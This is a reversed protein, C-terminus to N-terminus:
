KNNKTAEQDDSITAEEMLAHGPWHLAHCHVQGRGQLEFRVFNDRVRGLFGSDGPTIYSAM